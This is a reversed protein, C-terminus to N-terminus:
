LSKHFLGRLMDHQHTKQRQVIDIKIIQSVMFFLHFVIYNESLDRWSLLAQQSRPFILFFFYFSIFNSIWSHKIEELPSIHDTIMQTICVILSPTCSAIHYTFINCNPLKKNFRKNQALM